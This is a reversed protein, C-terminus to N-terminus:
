IMSKQYELSQPPAVEDPPKKKRRVAFFAVGAVIAIAVIIIAYFVTPDIPFGSFQAQWINTGTVKVTATQEFGGEGTGVLDAEVMVGTEKDWYYTYQIDNIPQLYSTYVVTRSAGVYTRTTEGAITANGYGMMFVTNGVQSNSPIILGSISSGVFGGGSTVNWTVTANGEAGSSMHTTVRVTTVPTEVSLFEIKVWQMVPVPLSPLPAITYDYRIWDGAKVGIQVENAKAKPVEPVAVLMGVAVIVLTVICTFKRNL